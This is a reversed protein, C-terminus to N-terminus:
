FMATFAEHGPTDIIAIQGHDTTCTVAGIHQTIGGAEGAVVNSERISDLLKTKGHDVHGMVVIVPPREMLDCAEEKSLIEVLKNKEEETEDEGVKPQVDLFLDGGIITATDFDIKENISAFVGNKMLEALVKNVPVQAITAFDRVTLAHPVFVVKKERKADEEKIKQSLEAKKVDLQHKLVQWNKLIKKATNNDVKIARQGINFGMQPLLDKLEQPSIRLNRALETINM